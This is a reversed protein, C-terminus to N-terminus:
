LIENSNSTDSKQKEEKKEENFLSNKSLYKFIKKSLYECYINTTQNNLKCNDRFLNTFYLKITKTNNGNMYYYEKEFLSNESIINIDTDSLSKDLIDFVNKNPSDEILSNEDTQNLIKMRKKTNENEGTEEGVFIHIIPFTNKIKKIFAFDKEIIQKIEDYDVEGLQLSNKVETENIDLIDEFFNSGKIKETKESLFFNIWRNFNNYNTFYLPNRYLVIIKSCDFIEVNFIGLILPIFSFNMNKIVSLLYQNYESIISKIKEYNYEDKNYIEYMLYMDNTYYLNNEIIEDENEDENKENETTQIGYTSKVSFRDKIKKINIKKNRNVFRNFNKINKSPDLSNLISNINMRYFPFLEFLKSPFINEIHFQHKENKLDFKNKLEEYLEKESISYFITYDSFKLFSKIKKSDLISKRSLENINSMYNNKDQINISKNKKKQKKLSNFSLCFNDDSDINSEYIKKNENFYLMMLKQILYFESVTKFELKVTKEIFIDGESENLELRENANNFKENEDFSFFNNEINNIITMNLNDIIKQEENTYNFKFQDLIFSHDKEGFHFNLKKLCFLYEITKNLEAAKSQKDITLYISGGLFIYIFLAFESLILSHTNLKNHSLFLLAPINIILDSVLKFSIIDTFYIIQDFYVNYIKQAIRNKNFYNKKLLSKKNFNMLIISIILLFLVLLHYYRLLYEVSKNLNIEKKFSNVDTEKFSLLTLTIYIINIALFTANYYFNFKFKLIDVVKIERLKDSLCEINKEDIKKIKNMLYSLKCALISDFCLSNVITIHMITLFAIIFNSFLDSSLLYISNIREDYKSLKIFYFVIFSISSFILITYDIWYVCIKKRCCNKFIYILIPILYIFYLFIFLASFTFISIYHGKENDKKEEDYDM